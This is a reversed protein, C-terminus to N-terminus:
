SLAFHLSLDFDSGLDSLNSYSISIDKEGKTELIAMQCYDELDQDVDFDYGRLDDKDMAGGDCKAPQGFEIILPLNIGPYKHFINEFEYFWLCKKLTYDKVTM